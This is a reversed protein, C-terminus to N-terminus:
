KKWPQYYTESYPQTPPEDLPMLFWLIFYVIVGSFATFLTALVWILRVRGSGWGLYEALGGCVGAIRSDTSSRHLPM